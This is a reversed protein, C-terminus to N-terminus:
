KMEAMLTGLDKKMRERLQPDADNWMEKLTMVTDAMHEKAHESMEHKDGESKTETYHRKALKWDKYPKGHREDEMIRAMDPDTYGMRGDMAGWKSHMQDDMMYSKDFEPRWDGEAPWPYGSKGSKGHIPTWHGRGKPAYRGSAYRYHDFGMRGEDDMPPMDEGDYEKMAKTVECYYAAKYLNKASDCLDKVMDVAGGAQELNICDSKIKDRTWRLVDQELELVERVRMEVDHM